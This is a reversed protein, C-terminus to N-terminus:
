KEEVKKTAAGVAAAIDFGGVKHIQEVPDCVEQRIQIAAKLVSPAKKSSVKGGLVMATRELAYGALEGVATGLEPDEALDKRVRLKAARLAKIADMPLISYSGQPRGGKRGNERNAQIQEEKTQPPLGREKRSRRQGGKNKKVTPEWNQIAEIYVACSPHHAAGACLGPKNCKTM